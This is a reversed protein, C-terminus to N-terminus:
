SKPILSFSTMSLSGMLLSNNFIEIDDKKDMVGAIYLMPAYHDLSPIALQAAQGKLKWDVLPQINRQKINEVHFQNMEIAWDYGFDEEPNKHWNVLRLNHVLNGSGIIVVGKKRLEKLKKGLEYHFSAPERYDISLQIVPIDAKPNIHKMISWNGHDFGWEYDIKIEPNDIMESIKKAMEPSGPAEYVVRYLEDPFGGFDYITRPKVQGTIFTGRTFWHASIMLILSPKEIKTLLTQWKKSFKNEEIANMPSGHGVFFAPALQETNPLLKSLGELENLAFIGTTGALGMKIFTKRNMDFVYPCHLFM